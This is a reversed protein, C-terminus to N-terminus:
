VAMDNWSLTNDGENQHFVRITNSATVEGFWM